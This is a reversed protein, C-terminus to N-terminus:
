DLRMVKILRHSRQASTSSRVFTPKNSKSGVNFRSLLLHSDDPDVTICCITWPLNVAFDKMVGDLAEREQAFLIKSLLHPSSSSPSLSSSLLGSREQISLSGIKQIVSDVTSGTETLSSTDSTPLSPYKRSHSLRLHHKPVVGVSESLYASASLPDLNRQSALLKGVSETISLFGHRLVVDWCYELLSDTKTPGESTTLSASLSSSSSCSLSSLSSSSSLLTTSSSLSLEAMASIVDIVSAATSSQTSAKCKAKSAKRVAARTGGRRRTTSANATSSKKTLTRRSRSSRLAAKEVEPEEEEEEENELTQEEEENSTTKKAASASAAEEDRKQRLRCETLWSCIGHAQIAPEYRSTMYQLVNHPIVDDEVKIAGKIALSVIGQQALCDMEFISHSRAFLPLCDCREILKMGNHGGLSDSEEDDCEGRYDEASLSFKIFFDRAVSACEGFHSNAKEWMNLGGVPKSGKKAKSGNDEAHDLHERKEALYCYVNALGLSVACFPAAVSSLDEDETDLIEDRISEMHHLFDNSVEYKCVQLRTYKVFSFLYHSHYGLLTSLYMARDLFYSSNRSQGLGHYIASLQWLTQFLLTTYEMTAGRQYNKMKLAQNDGDRGAGNLSLWGQWYQKLNLITQNTQNLADPLSGRSLSLLGTLLRWMESTMDDKCKSCKWISDCASLLEEASVIEHQNLYYQCLLLCARADIGSKQIWTSSSLPLTNSHETLDETAGDGDSCKKRSLLAVLSSHDYFIEDQSCSLMERLKDIHVHIGYSSYLAALYSLAYQRTARRERHSSTFSVQCLYECLDKQLSFKEAQYYLLMDLLFQTDREGLEECHKKWIGMGREGWREGKRTREPMDFLTLSAPKAHSATNKEGGRQSPNVKLFTKEKAQHLASTVLVGMWMCAAACVSMSCHERAKKKDDDVSEWDMEEEVEDEKIGFKEQLLEKAMVLPKSSQLSAALNRLARVKELYTWHIREQIQNREGGREKALALKYITVADDALANHLIPLHRACRMVTGAMCWADKARIIDEKEQIRFINVMLLKALHGPKMEKEWQKAFNSILDILRREEEHGRIVAYSCWRIAQISMKRLNDKVSTLKESDTEEKEMVRKLLEGINKYQRHLTCLGEGVIAEEKQKEADVKREELVRIARKLWSRTVKCVGELMVSTEGERGPANYLASAVNMLATVASREVVDFETDGTLLRCHRIAINVYEFIVEKM